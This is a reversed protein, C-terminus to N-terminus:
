ALRRRRTGLVFMGAFALGATTPLPIINELGGISFEDFAFVDVGAATNGFTIKEIDGEDKILGFFLASGDLNSNGGGGFANGINILTTGGGTLHLLLTVQGNFDGIDTATFGFAAIPANFTLEFNGSVEWFKTGNISYRGSGNTNPQNVNVIGGAGSLTATRGGGFNTVIPATTGAAFGELTETGVNILNSFFANRANDSLPTAALRVQSSNPSPNLDQGFFTVTAAQASAGAMAVICLATMSRVM